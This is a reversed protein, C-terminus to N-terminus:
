AECSHKASPPSIRCGIARQKRELHQLGERRKQMNCKYLWAQLSFPTKEPFSVQWRRNSKSAGPSHSCWGAASFLLVPFLRTFTALTIAAFSVAEHNEVLEQRRLRALTKATERREQETKQREQETLRELEASKLAIRSLRLPDSIDFSLYVRYVGYGIASFWALMIFILLLKFIKM